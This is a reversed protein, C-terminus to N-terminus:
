IKTERTYINLLPIAATGHSLHINIYSIFSDELTAPGNANRGAIFSVELYEADRDANAMTMNQIKVM